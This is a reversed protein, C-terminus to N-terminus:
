FIEVSYSYSYYENFIKQRIRIRINNTLFNGGFVFVFIIRDSFIVSYSYSYNIIRICEFVNSYIRIYFQEKELPSIHLIKLAPQEHGLQFFIVLVQRIQTCSPGTLQRSIYIMYGLQCGFGVFVVILVQCKVNCGVPSFNMTQSCLKLGFLGQKHHNLQNDHM